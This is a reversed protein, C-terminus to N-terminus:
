MGSSTKVKKEPSNKSNESPPPSKRKSSDEQSPSETNSALDSTKITEPERVESNGHQLEVEVNNENSTKDGANENSEKQIKHFNKIKKGSEYKEEDFYEVSTVIKRLDQKILEGLNIKPKESKEKVVEEKEEPFRINEFLSDVTATTDTTDNTAVTDSDSEDLDDEDVENEKDDDDDDEDEDEEVSDLNDSGVGEPKPEMM